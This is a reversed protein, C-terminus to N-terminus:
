LIREYNRTYKFNKLIAQDVFLRRLLRAKLTQQHMNVKKALDSLINNKGNV